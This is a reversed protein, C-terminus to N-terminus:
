AKQRKFSLKFGIHRAIDKYLPIGIFLVLFIWGFRVLESMGFLGIEMVRSSPRMETGLFHQFTLYAGGVALHVIKVLIDWFQLMLYLLVFRMVFYNIKSNDILPEALSQAVAKDAPSATASNTIALEKERIELEIKRSELRTKAVTVYAVVLGFVAVPIALIGAVVEWWELARPPETGAQAPDSIAILAFLTWALLGHYRM